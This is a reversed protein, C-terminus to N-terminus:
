AFQSKTRNLILLDYEKEIYRIHPIIKRMTRMIATDFKAKSHDVARDLKVGNGYYNQVGRRFDQSFLYYSEGNFQMYFHQKSNTDAKCYVTAEIKAM